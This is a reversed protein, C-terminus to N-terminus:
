HQTKIFWFHVNEQELTELIDLNDKFRLGWGKSYHISYGVLLVKGPIIQYIRQAKIM